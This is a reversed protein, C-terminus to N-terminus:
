FKCIVGISNNFEYGKKILPQKIYEYSLTFKYYFDMKNSISYTLKFVNDMHLTNFVHSFRHKEFVTSILGKELQIEETILQQGNNHSRWLVGFLSFDLDYQFSFITNIKYRLSSSLGIGFYIDWAYRLESGHPFWMEGSFNINGGVYLSLNKINIAKINELYRLKINGSYADILNINNGKTKLTGLMFNSQIEIIRNINLTLFELNLLHNFGNKALRSYTNDLKLKYSQGYAFTISKMPITDLEFNSKPVKQACIGLSLFLMILLISFSKKKM